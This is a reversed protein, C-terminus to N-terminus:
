VMRFLYTETDLRNEVYNMVREGNAGRRFVEVTLGFTADGGLHEPPLAGLTVGGHGVIDKEDLGLLDAFTKRSLNRVEVPDKDPVPQYYFGEGASQVYYRTSPKAGTVRGKADATVINDAM